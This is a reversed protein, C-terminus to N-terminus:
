SNEGDQQPNGDTDDTRSAQRNDRQIPVFGDVSEPEHDGSHADKGDRIAKITFPEDCFYENEVLLTGSGRAHMIVPPVIDFRIRPDYETMVKGGDRPRPWEYPRHKRRLETIQGTREPNEDAGREATANVVRHNKKSGHAAVPFRERLHHLFLDAGNRADDSEDARERNEDDDDRHESQNHDLRQSLAGPADEGDRCGDGNRHEHATGEAVDTGSMNAPHCEEADDAQQGANPETLIM